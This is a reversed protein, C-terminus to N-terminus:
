LYGPARAQGNVSIRCSAWLRRRARLGSGPLAEGLAADLRLERADSARIYRLPFLEAFNWLCTKM